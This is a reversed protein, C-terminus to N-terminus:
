LSGGTQDIETRHADETAAYKGLATRFKDAMARCYKERSALTELLAAGSARIQEANGLSAYELGPAQAASIYYAKRFDEKFEDALDDWDKALERLTAEDYAFGAGPGASPGYSGAVPVGDPGPLSWDVDPDYVSGM